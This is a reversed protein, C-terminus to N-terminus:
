AREAGASLRRRTEWPWESNFRKLLSPQWVAVVALLYPVVVIIVFFSMKFDKRKPLTGLGLGPGYRELHSNSLLPYRNKPNEIQLHFSQRGTRSRVSLM